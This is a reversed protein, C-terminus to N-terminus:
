RSCWYFDSVYSTGSTLFQQKLSQVDLLALHVVWVHIKGLQELRRPTTWLIQSADPSWKADNGGGAYRWIQQSWDLLWYDQFHSDSSGAEAGVLLTQGNPSWAISQPYNWHESREPLRITALIQTDSARSVKLVSYFCDSCGFPNPTPPLVTPDRVVHAFMAGDASWTLLKGNGAINLEARTKTEASVTGSLNEVCQGKETDTLKVAKREPFRLELWDIHSPGVLQYVRHALIIKFSSQLPSAAPQALATIIRSSGYIGSFLLSVWLTVIAPTALMAM